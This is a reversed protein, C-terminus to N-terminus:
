HPQIQTEIIAAYRELYEKSPMKQCDDETIKKRTCSNRLYASTNGTFILEYNANFYMYQRDLMRHHLACLCIGNGVDGATSESYAVSLIHSAELLDKESIDCAACRNWFNKLVQMRFENQGQRVKAERVVRTVSVSHAKKNDVYHVNIKELMTDIDGYAYCLSDIIDGHVQKIPFNYEDAMTPDILKIRSGELDMSFPVVDHFVILLDRPSGENTDDWLKSSLAGDQVTGMVAGKVFCMNKHSFLVVDGEKVNHWIAQNEATSRLGWVPKQSNPSKASWTIKNQITKEFKNLGEISNVSILFINKHRMHANVYMFFPNSKDIPSDYLEENSNIKELHQRLKIKIKNQIDDINYKVFEVFKGNLELYNGHPIPEYVDNFDKQLAALVEPQISKQIIKNRFREMDKKELRRLDPNKQHAIQEKHILELINIETTTYQNRSKPTTHNIDLYSVDWYYKIFRAALFNLNVTVTDENRTIWENKNLGNGVYRSVETLAYLLVCKYTSFMKGSKFFKNFM